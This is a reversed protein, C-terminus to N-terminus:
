LPILFIDWFSIKRKKKNALTSNRASHIFSLSLRIHQTTNHKNYDCPFTQPVKPTNIYLYYIISYYWIFLFILLFWIIYIYYYFSALLGGVVFALQKTFSIQFSCFIFFASNTLKRSLYLSLLSVVVMNKV